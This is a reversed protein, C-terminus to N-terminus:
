FTTFLKRSSGSLRSCSAPSKGSAPFHQQVGSLLKGTVPFTGQM